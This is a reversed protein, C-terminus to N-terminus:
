RVDDPPPTTTIRDVKEMERQMELDMKRMLGLQASMLEIPRQLRKMSLLPGLRSERVKLTMIDLSFTPNGHGGFKQFREGHQFINQNLKPL